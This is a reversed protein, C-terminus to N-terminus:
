SISKLSKSRIVLMTMIGFIITSFVLHANQVYGVLDIHALFVGSALEIILVVYLWRISKYKARKENAYFLITLLLLVLWSFSRHIFFSLGLYGSWEERGIGQRTLHDISERVQTGLFMQYATILFCAWLIIYMWKEFPIKISQSPSILNIQKIHIAVILLAFFLHVTITWPVLNSSVVISGFWAQFAIFILNSLSLILLTKNKRYFFFIWLFLILLSNGAAFGFLRNIYETWTKVVNFLEEKSLEPDNVLKEATKDLGLVSIYFAFKEIKQKRKQSFVDEYNDPVQSEETPPIWQGFCKPWDPCGMGSGTTRVFTGACIVFYIFVLAWWNFRVFLRSYTQM